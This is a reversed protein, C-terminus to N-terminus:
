KPMKTHEAEEQTALDEEAEKPFLIGFYLIEEEMLLDAVSYWDKNYEPIEIFENQLEKNLENFEKQKAIEYQHLEQTTADKMLEAYAIHIDDARVQIQEQYIKGIKRLWIRVYVRHHAQPKSKALKDIFPKLLLLQGKTIQM